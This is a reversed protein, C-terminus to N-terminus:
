RNRRTEYFVSGMSSLFLDCSLARTYGIPSSTLTPVQVYQPPCFKLLYTLSILSSCVLLAKGFPM